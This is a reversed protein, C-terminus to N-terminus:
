PLLALAQNGHIPQNDKFGRGAVRDARATDFGLHLVREREGGASTWTGIWARQANHRCEM